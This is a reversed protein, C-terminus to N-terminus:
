YLEWQPRWRRVTWRTPQSPEGGGAAWRELNEREPLDLEDLTGSRRREHLVFASWAVREADSM